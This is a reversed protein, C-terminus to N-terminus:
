DVRSLLRSVDSVQRTTTSAAWQVEGLRAQTVIAKRTRAQLEIERQMKREEIESIRRAGSNAIARARAEREADERARQEHFRDLAAAREEALEAKRAQEAQRAEFLHGASRSLALQASETRREIEDSSRSNALSKITVRKFMQEAVRESMAAARRELADDVHAARERQREIIAAVRQDYQKRQDDLKSRASQLREEYAANKARLQAKREARRQKAQSTHVSMTQEFQRLREQGVALRSEQLQELVDRSRQRSLRFQNAADPSLEAARRMDEQRAAEAVEESTLADLFAAHGEERERENEERKAAHRAHGAAATSVISQQSQSEVLKKRTLLHDYKQEWEADAKLSSEYENADKLIREARLKALFSDQKSLTASRLPIPRLSPSTIFTM